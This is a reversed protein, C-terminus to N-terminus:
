RNNNMNRQSLFLSMKQAMLEHARKNPHSDYPLNNYKKNELPLSIDVTEINTKKLANLIDLTTQSTTIGAVILRIGNEICYENIEEFLRITNQEADISATMYRDAITQLLNILAFAERGKWNKYLASWNEKRYHLVGQEMTVYPFASEAMSIGKNNVASQYGINLHLRYAPTMSNRDLHFDAFNFLAIDPKNGLEVMQKLQMFGQVTGYGPVAYSKVYYEEVGKALQAPFAELNNIGMGYTYSCGFIALIPKAVLSSDIKLKRTFRGLHTARYTLGDNITVTFEGLNLALGFDADAVINQDPVSKISFEQYRYPRYGTAWLLGELLPIAILICYVVFGAKKKLTLTDSVRFFRLSSLM